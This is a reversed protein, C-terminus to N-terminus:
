WVEEEVMDEGGTEGRGEVDERGGGPLDYCVQERELQLARLLEEQNTSVVLMARDIAPPRFPQLFLLAVVAVVAVAGDSFALLHCVSCGCIPIRFHAFRFFPVLLLLLLLLLLLAWWALRLREELLADQAEPAM